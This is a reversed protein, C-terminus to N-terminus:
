RFYHCRAALIVRHAPFSKSNVVFTVDSYEENLALAGVDESLQLCHDIEGSNSVVPQLAQDDGLNDCMSVSMQFRFKHFVAFYILPVSLQVCRNIQFHFVEFM